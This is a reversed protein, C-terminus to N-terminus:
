YRHICSSFSIGDDKLTMSNTGLQNLTKVPKTPKKRRKRWSIRSTMSAKDCDSSPTSIQAVLVCREIAKLNPAMREIEANLKTVEKDFDDVSGSERTDEDLSEFDVEIGFNQVQKPRQTGNEDEDVDM